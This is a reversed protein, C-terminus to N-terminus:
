SAPGADRIPDWAAYREGRVFQFFGAISALNALVFYLPIGFPGPKLGIQELVWGFTAAAAFAAQASVVVLFATSTSALFASAAFAIVLFVPVSYRLVKHSILQVAFFGSKFPNLMDRNRWLDAITQAIVRIRMKMEKQSRRNTEETCVAAPEYVTRMGQRFVETAILFDSCAEPYMPRYASRRVAYICGSVGILSCASSEAKKLLTEYSWYSRAGSGVTSDDPDVYSLRGAVCGVTPDAFNAVLERVAGAEYISTADSFVLVEGNAAEVALNQASTKGGRREARVLRVGRGAFERVIDDTGDDSCDSAVIVELKQKPYDLQLTNELKARIDKEENFATIILSVNPEIESRAVKSAAFRAILMVLVPYGAYVYLVAGVSVFFILKATLIPDM